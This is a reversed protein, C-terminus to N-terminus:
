WTTNWDCGTTTLPYLYPPQTPTVTTVPTVPPVTVPLFTFDWKVATPGIRFRVEDQAEIDLQQVAAVILEILERDKGETPM